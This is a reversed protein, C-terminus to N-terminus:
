FLQIENKMYGSLSKAMSHELNGLYKVMIKEPISVNFDIDEHMTVEGKGRM